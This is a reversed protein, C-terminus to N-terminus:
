RPIGNAKLLDDAFKSIWDTGFERGAAAVSQCIPKLRHCGPLPDGDCICAFPM